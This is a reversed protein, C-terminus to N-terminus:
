KRANSYNVQEFPALGAEGELNLVSVGMILRFLHEAASYGALLALFYNYYKSRLCFKEAKFNMNTIWIRYVCLGMM